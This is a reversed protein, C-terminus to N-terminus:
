ALSATPGSSPTGVAFRFGRVSFPPGCGGRRVCPRAVRARPTPGRDCERWEPEPRVAGGIHELKLKRCPCPYQCCPFRQAHGSLPLAYVRLSAACAWRTPAWRAYGNAPESARRLYASSIGSSNRVGSWAIQMEVSRRSGAKRKGNLEDPTDRRMGGEAWGLWRRVYM